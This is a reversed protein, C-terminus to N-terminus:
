TSAIDGKAAYAQIRVFEGYVRNRSDPALYWDSSRITTEDFCWDYTSCSLSASPAWRALTRWCRGAHHSSCYFLISSLNVSADTLASLGFQVNELTNTSQDEVLIASEPVGFRMLEERIRHSQPASTLEDHDGYGGTAIIRESFEEAYLGAAPQWTGTYAGFIFIIDSPKPKSPVFVTQTIDQRDSVSLPPAEVQRSIARELPPRPMSSNKMPLSTQEFVEMKLQERINPYAASCKLV